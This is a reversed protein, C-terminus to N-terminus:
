PKRDAESGSCACCNLGKTPVLKGYLSVARVCSASHSRCAVTANTHGAHIPLCTFEAATPISGAPHHMTNQQMTPDQGDAAASMANAAPQARWPCACAEANVKRPLSAVAPTGTCKCLPWCSPTLAASAGESVRCLPRRGKSLRGALRAAVAAATDDGTGVPIPLQQEEPSDAAATNSQSWRGAACARMLSQNTAQQAYAIASRQVLRRNQVAQVEAALHVDHRTICKNATIPAGRGCPTCHVASEKQRSSDARSSGPRGARCLKRGPQRTLSRFCFAEAGLMQQM